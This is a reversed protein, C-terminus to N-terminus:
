GDIAVCKGNVCAATAQECESRLPPECTACSQKANSELNPLLNRATSTPLPINCAYGCVNDELLLTCEASNKCGSGGYKELLQARFAAYDKQGILCADPPDAVCSACCDGPATESHTGEECDVVPCAECGTDPCSPCCDNPGQVIRKCTTPISECTVKECHLAPMSGASASPGGAGANQDGGAGFGSGATGAPSQSSEKEAKGACAGLLLAAGVLARSLGRGGQESGFIM